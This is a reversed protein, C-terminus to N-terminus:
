VMIFVDQLTIIPLVNNEMFLDAASNCKYSKVVRLM